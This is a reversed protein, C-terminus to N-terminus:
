IKNELQNLREFLDEILVTNAAIKQLLFSERVKAEDAGPNQSIYQKTYGKSEKILKESWTDIRKIKDDISM